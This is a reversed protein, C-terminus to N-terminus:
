LVTFTRSKSQPNEKDDLIYGDTFEFTNGFFTDMRENLDENARAKIKGRTNKNLGFFNLEIIELYILLSFIQLFYFIIYCYQYNNKMQYGKPFLAIYVMIYMKSLNQAILIYEPSLYFITLIELVCSIFELIFNIIFKSAVIGKSVKKFYFFFDEIFDEILRDNKTILLITILIINVSIVMIGISFMINWYHHYHIDIMYKIYCFYASEAIFSLFIFINYYGISLLKYTYNKLFLDFVICSIFFLVISIYHHKFYKYKLLFISIITIFIMELGEKTAIFESKMRFLSKPTYKPDHKYIQTLYCVFIINTQIAYLFLM